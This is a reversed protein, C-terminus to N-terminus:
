LRRKPNIAQEPESQVPKLLALVDLKIGAKEINKRFKNKVKELNVALPSYRHLKFFSNNYHKNIQNIEDSLFDLIIQICSIDTKKAVQIYLRSEIRDILNRKSFCGRYHADIIDNLVSDIIKVVSATLYIGIQEIENPEPKMFELLVFLSPWKYKEASYVLATKEFQIDLTLLFSLMDTHNVDIAKNLLSEFFVSPLKKIDVISLYAKVFDWDEKTKSQLLLDHDEIKCGGANFLLVAIEANYHKVAYKWHMTDININELDSGVLYRVHDVSILIISLGLVENFFEDSDFFNIFDTKENQLFNLQVQVYKQVVVTNASACLAELQDLRNLSYIDKLVSLKRKELPSSSQPDFDDLRKSLPILDEIDQVMFYDLTKFEDSLFDVFSSTSIDHFINKSTVINLQPNELETMILNYQEELQKDSLQDNISVSMSRLQDRVTAERFIEDLMRGKSQICYEVGLRKSSSKDDLIIKIVKGLNGDVGLEGIKKQIAKGSSKKGLVNWWEGFNAIAVNACSGANFEGGGHNVDGRLLGARLESLRLYVDDNRLRTKGLVEIYRTLEILEKLAPTRQALIILDDQTLALPLTKKLKVDSGRWIDELKFYGHKMNEIALRIVQSYIHLHNSSSRFFHQPSLPLDTTLEVFNQWPQERDKTKTQKFLYNAPVEEDPFVRYILLVCLQNALTMAFCYDHSDGRLINERVQLFEEVKEPIENDDKVSVLLRYISNATCYLDFLRARSKKELHAKGIQADILRLISLVLVSCKKAHESIQTELYTFAEYLDNNSPTSNQPATSSTSTFKSRTIM